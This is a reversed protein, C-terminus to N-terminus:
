HITEVYAVEVEPKDFRAPMLRGLERFSKEIWPDWDGDWSRRMNIEHLSIAQEEFPFAQEELLIDYQAQEMPSLGSPRESQMIATSLSTYLDAIQFTSASTFDAVQYAAAAEFAQLTRKLAKQKRGLSKKLPNTLRVADFDAREDEALVYQAQAALYTARESASSGLGAHLQIKQTLWYRRSEGDGLRQYLLDLNHVAELQLAPPSQYNQAYDKFYVVANNLDDLELYLEAARYLSQRRVEGDADESALRVYERAAATQDGTHEYMAALRKATDRGLESDPYNQRFEALLAAADSIRGTGETVAVADYHGQMALESTPDIEKLRLFHSVALDMEGNQESAEGQKYISALLRERVSSREEEELEGALLQRYARESDAYRGLEFWGHGLVLLDTRRLSWPLDPWTRLLNDALEVARDYEHLQFLGDAADTQVAPARPDSAFVFAFEIQADIKQHLWLVQEDAPAQDVLVALGLIAAYGAEHARPYDPFERVVRQYADVARGFEKAETYVEGLLFVYEATEPDEPFTAVLEEYWSAAALYDARTETEQAEAHAVKSLEDLYEKLTDIYGARVTEGHVDWFESSIGYGRVFMEKKPRVESPFEAETLTQIMGIHANPARADLPNEDIFKQWTAVSDLFRERELYDEALTQYAFYQWHPRQLAAMQEALSVPGDLYGLALTVVRFSDDLLERDTAALSEPKNDPLLSDIVAFFSVLSAELDSIKFLAWGRMYNANQWYATDPGQDVVYAYDESAQRYQERSFAIEARRFRAELAFASQPYGAILRDLYGVTRDTQGALDYARALQYLIEDQNGGDAEELLSEYLSIAAQYPEPQGAIDLDEGVSMELDALRKGIARDEDPNAMSGYIRRYALMVEERSPVAAPTTPVELEPLRDVIQALKPGAPEMVESSGFWSCGSLVAFVCAPLLVLPWPRREGQARKRIGPFM